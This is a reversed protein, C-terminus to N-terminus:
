KVLVAVRHGRHHGDVSHMVLAPLEDLDEFELGKFTQRPLLIRVKLRRISLSGRYPRRAFQCLRRTQNRLSWPRQTPAFRRATRTAQRMFQAAARRLDVSPEKSRLEAAIRIGEDTNTPPMRIDTLVVDPREHEIAVRLSDLDSCAAVVTLDDVSSLLERM